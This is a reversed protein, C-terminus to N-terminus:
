RDRFHRRRLAAWEVPPDAPTPQFTIASGRAALADLAAAHEATLSISKLV